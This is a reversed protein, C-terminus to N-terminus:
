SREQKCLNSIENKFVCLYKRADKREACLRLNAQKELNYCEDSESQM